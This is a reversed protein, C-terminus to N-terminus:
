FMLTLLLSITILGSTVLFLILRKSSLQAELLSKRFVYLEAADRALSNYDEEHTRYFYNRRKM